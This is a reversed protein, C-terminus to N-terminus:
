FLFGLIAAPNRGCSRRAVVAADANEESCFGLLAMLPDGRLTMSAQALVTTPHHALAATEASWRWCRAISAEIVGFGL